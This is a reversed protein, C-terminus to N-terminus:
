STTGTWAPSCICWWTRSTMTGTTLLRIYEADWALIKITVASQRTCTHDLRVDDVLDDLDVLNVVLGGFVVQGGGKRGDGHGFELLLASDENAAFLSVVPELTLWARNASVNSSDVSGDTAGGSDRRRLSSVALSDIPITTSGLLDGWRIRGDFRSSICRFFCKGALVWLRLKLLRGLVGLGQGLAGSWLGMRM